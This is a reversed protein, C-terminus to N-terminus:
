LQWSRAAPPATPSGSYPNSGAAAPAETRSEPAPQEEAGRALNQMAGTWGEALTRLLRAVEQLPAESQEAHARILQRQMYGYLGGLTNSYEPQVDCRLSMQLESLIEIAKNVAQGRKLIDGAYLAALAEELTHIAAEYLIRILEAPSANEVRQQLYEKQRNM